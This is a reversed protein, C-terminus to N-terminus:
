TGPYCTSLCPRPRGGFGPKEPLKPNRLAAFLAFPSCHTCVGAAFQPLVLELQVGLPVLKAQDAFGGTGTGGDLRDLWEHQYWMSEWLERGWNM